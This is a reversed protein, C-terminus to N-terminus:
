LAPMFRGSQKWLIPSVNRYTVRTPASFAKTNVPLANGFGDELLSSSSVIIPSQGFYELMELFQGKVIEPFLGRRLKEQLEAVATYYNEPKKHEQRLQWCGNEVLYTYFVDSGIYFSDHPELLERWNEGSHSALIKRALIVGVAKGGILGSGIMRSKIHLLDEISLYNRVLSLIRQDRSIVMTLLQDLISKKKLEILRPDDSVTDALDKANLFVHDWYDLRREFTESVKPSITLSNPWITERIRAITQFSHCNRLLGFYAITNLEFLYPCIVM